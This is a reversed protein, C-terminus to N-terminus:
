PTGGFHLPLAEIKRSIRSKIRAARSVYCNGGHCTPLTSEPRVADWNIDFYAAFPSDRGWELVDLWWLNDSGVGMHNPVFDLILGMSHTHLIWM